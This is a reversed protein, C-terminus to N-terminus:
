GSVRQNCKLHNLESDEVSKLKERSERIDVIFGSIARFGQVLSPVLALMEAM